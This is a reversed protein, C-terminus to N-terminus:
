LRLLAVIMRFLGVAILVGIVIKWLIGAKKQATQVREPLGAKCEVILSEPVDEGALLCEKFRQARADTHNLDTSNLLAQTATPRDGAELAQIGKDVWELARWRGAIRWSLLFAAGGLLWTVGLPIALSYWTDESHSPDWKIMFAM